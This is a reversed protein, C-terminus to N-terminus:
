KGASRRASIILGEQRELRQIAQEAQEQLRMNTEGRLHTVALNDVLRMAEWQCTRLRQRASKAELIIEDTM